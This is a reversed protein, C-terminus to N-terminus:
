IFFGKDGIKLMDIYRFEYFLGMLEVYNNSKHMTVTAFGSVLNGKDDRIIVGAGMLDPNGLSCDEKNLKIM